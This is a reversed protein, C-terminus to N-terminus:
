PTIDFVTKLYLDIIQKGYVNPVRFDETRVQCHIGFEQVCTRYHHIHAKFTPVNIVKSSVDDHLPKSVHHIGLEFVMEPKVIVKNRRFSYHKTRNTRVIVNIENSFVHRSFEDAYFTSKFSFGSSNKFAVPESINLDNLVELWTTMNRQPIIFEDLDIFVLYEFDNMNRYLCDNIALSQGHYWISDDQFPLTWQVTNVINQEKFYHIVRRIDPLLDDTEYLLFIDAGLIRNFQIFQILQKPTVSGYIPPVCVGFKLKRRTVDKDRSIVCAEAFTNGTSMEKNIFSIRVREPLQPDLGEPVPCTFIWGGYRKKHNECMEYTQIRVSIESTSNLDFVCMLNTDLYDKTIGKGVTAIIRVLTGESSKRNDLYASYVSIESNLNVFRAPRYPDCWKDGFSGMEVQGM